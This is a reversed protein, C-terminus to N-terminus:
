DETQELQLQRSAYFYAQKYDEREKCCRELLRYLERRQARSLVPAAEARRLSEEAKQWHKQEMEGMGSLILWEGRARPSPEGVALLERAATQLHGQSLAYRAMLLHGDETLDARAFDARVTRALAEAGGGQEIACRLLVADARLKELRGAYLSGECAEAALAAAERAERFRGDGAADEGLRVAARILLYKGEEEEGAPRGRLLSVCGLLDGQRFAERAQALGERAPDPELLWGMTVGLVSALHELTRVSPSAQDNELQSLMNRTIVQGCVQSQTLGRDLRAQKLKQGLTM